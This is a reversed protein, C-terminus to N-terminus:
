CQHQYIDTGIFSFLPLTDVSGIIVTSKLIFHIILTHLNVNMLAKLIYFNWSCKCMVMQCLTLRFRAYLM